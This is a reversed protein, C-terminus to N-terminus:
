PTVNSELKMAEQTPHLAALAEKISQKGAIMWAMGPGICDDHPWELGPHQECMLGDANLLEAEQEHAFLWGKPREVGNVIETEM